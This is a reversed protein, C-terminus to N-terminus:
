GQRREIGALLIGSSILLRPDIPSGPDLITMRYKLVIPNFYQSIEAVVRGDTTIAVYTQPIVNMFRSLLAGSASKETLRGLEREDSSLYTWEDRFISRVGQRRVAGIVEGSMADEVGYTAGIDLIQNTRIILLEQMGPDTSYVRFDEKLRLAKQKSQLVLNGTEDCVHFAGGLIKLVKRRIVYESHRFAPHLHKDWSM